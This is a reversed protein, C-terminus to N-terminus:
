DNEEIAKLEKESFSEIPLISQNSGVSFPVTDQYPGNAFDHNEDIEVLKHTFSTESHYTRLIAKMHFLSDSFRFLDVDKEFLTEHWTSFRKLNARLNNQFYSKVKRARM